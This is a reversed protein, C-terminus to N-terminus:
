VRARGDSKMGATFFNPEPHWLEAFGHPEVAGCSHLDINPM